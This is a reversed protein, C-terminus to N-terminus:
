KAIKLSDQLYIEQVQMILLRYVRIDNFSDVENMIKIAEPGTAIGSVAMDTLKFATKDTICNLEFLM